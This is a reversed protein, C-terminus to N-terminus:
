ASLGDIKKTREYRENTARRIEPRQKSDTTMIRMRSANVRKESTHLAASRHKGAATRPRWDDAQGVCLQANRNVVVEIRTRRVNSNKWNSSTASISSSSASNPSSGSSRDAVLCFLPGLVTSDHGLLRDPRRCVRAM